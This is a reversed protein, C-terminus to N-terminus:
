EDCDPHPEDESVPDITLDVEEALIDELILGICYPEDDSPCAECEISLLSGLLGCAEDPDSLDIPLDLEVDSLDRLDLAGSLGVGYMGAGDPEFIGSINMDWITLSIGMMSVPFDTPGVQFYPSLAFDIPDFDLTPMCVDQVLEESDTDPLAGVLDLVEDTAEEVGILVKVNLSDGLLGTLLPSDPKVWTATSLDIAYSKGNIDEELPELDEPIDSGGDDGGGDDGGGDDGGGDDGGGDDGGDGSEDENVDGDGDGNGSISDDEVCNGNDSLTSGEPCEGVTASQDKTGCAALIIFAFISLQRM